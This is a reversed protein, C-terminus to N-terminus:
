IHILSLCKSVYFGLAVLSIVVNIAAGIAAASRIAKNGRLFLLVIATVVPLYVMVSLIPFGIMNHELSM